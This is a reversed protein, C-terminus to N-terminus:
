SASLALRFVWPEVGPRTVEDKQELNEIIGTTWIRHSKIILWSTSSFIRSDSLVDTLMFSTKQVCKTLLPSITSETYAQDGWAEIPATLVGRSAVVVIFRKNKLVNPQTAACIYLVEHIWILLAPSM